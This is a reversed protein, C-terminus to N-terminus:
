FESLVPSTAWHSFASAGSKSEQAGYPLLLSSIEILQGRVEVHAMSVQGWVGCVYLCVYIYYFHKISIRCLFARKKKGELM